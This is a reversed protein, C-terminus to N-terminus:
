ANKEHAKRVDSIKGFWHDKQNSWRILVACFPPTLRVVMGCNQKASIHGPVKPVRVWDYLRIEDSM